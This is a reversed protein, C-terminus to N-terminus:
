SSKLMVGVLLSLSGLSSVMGARLHEAEGGSRSAFRASDSEVSESKARLTLSSNSCSWLSLLILGPSHARVTMLVTQGMSNRKEEGSSLPM